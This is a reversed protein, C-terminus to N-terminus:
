EAEQQNTTVMSAFADLADRCTPYNTGTGWTIECCHGDGAKWQSDAVDLRRTDAEGRELETLCARLAQREEPLFDYMQESLLDELKEKLEERPITPTNM